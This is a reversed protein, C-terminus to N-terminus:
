PINERGGSTWDAEVVPVSSVMSHWFQQPFAAQTAKSCCTPWVNWIQGWIDGMKAHPGLPHIELPSFQLEILFFFPHKITPYQTHLLVAGSLKGAARSCVLPWGEAHALLHGVRTQSHPLTFLLAQLPQCCLGCPMLDCVCSHWFGRLSPSTVYQKKGQEGLKIETNGTNFESNGKLFLSYM